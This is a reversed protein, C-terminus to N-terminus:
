RVLHRYVTAVANREFRVPYLGGLDEIAATITGESYSGRLTVHHPKYRALLHKPVEFTLQVKSDTTSSYEPVLEMVSGDAYNLTGKLSNGAKTFSLELNGLQPSACFYEGSSEQLCSTAFWWIPGIIAFVIAMNLLLIGLRKSSDNM